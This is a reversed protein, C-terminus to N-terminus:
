HRHRFLRSYKKLRATVPCGAVLTNDKYNITKAKETNSFTLCLHKELFKRIVEFNFDKRVKSVFVEQYLQNKIELSLEQWVDEVSAKYRINNIFLGLETSRMNLIHSPADDRTRKRSFVRKALIAKRLAFLFNTSSHALGKKTSILRKTCNKFVVSGMSSSFTNM